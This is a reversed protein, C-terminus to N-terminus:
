KYRELLAELVELQVELALVQSASGPFSDGIHRLEHLGMKQGFSRRPKNWLKDLEYPPDGMLLKERAAVLKDRFQSM